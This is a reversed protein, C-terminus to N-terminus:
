QGIGNLAAENTGSTADSTVVFAGHFQGVHTPTFTVTFPMSGGAAVTGSTPSATFVANGTIMGSVTLTGTGTNNINFTRSLSSGISVAGGPEDSRMDWTGSLGIIRTPAVIGTGSLTTTNTGSTADSTVTLTSSYSTAATPTFTLTVNASGGAAV